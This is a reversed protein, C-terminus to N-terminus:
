CNVIDLGMMKHLKMITFRARLYHGCNLATEVTERDLGLQERTTPGGVTRLVDRITEPSPVTAAVAQVDSWRELIHRKVRDHVEPTLNLFPEQVRLIDDAVDPYVREIEAVQDAKPELEAAELLDNVEALSLARIRAYREAVLSTAYGVKAGHLLAPKKERLLQMEWFHSCHHEAGSAPRSNGFELMGIGSELLAEFLLHIADESRDAIAAAAGICQDLARRVRNEVAEDFADGWIVSALKWDALSTLKGLIDGFGAAIMETPAAALTGLDGFVALPPTTPYTVKMGGVVLPAGNSIFGDVSPATPVPIYPNRTRFAVYRAIDTVTGSGVPIFVQGETSSQVFVKMLYAEDAVVEEGALVINITELGAAEFAHHVRKGLAAYTNNDSIITFRPTDLERCYAVLQDVIDHGIEVHLNM